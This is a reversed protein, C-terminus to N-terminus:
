RGGAIRSVRRAKGLHNCSRRLLMKRHHGHPHLQAILGPAVSAKAEQGTEQHLVAEFNVQDGRRELMPFLPLAIRRLCTVAIQRVAHRKDVLRTIGTIQIHFADAAMGNRCLVHAIIEARMCAFVVEDIALYGRVINGTSTRFCRLFLANREYRIDIVKPGLGHTHDEVSRNDGAHQVMRKCAIRM